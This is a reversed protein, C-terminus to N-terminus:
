RCDINIASNIKQRIVDGKLFSSENLRKGTNQPGLPPCPNFGTFCDKNKSAADPPQEVNV